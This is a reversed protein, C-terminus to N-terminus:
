ESKTEAAPETVPANNNAVASPTTKSEFIWFSFIFYFLFNNKKKKKKLFSKGDTSKWCKEAGEIREEEKKSSLYSQATEM